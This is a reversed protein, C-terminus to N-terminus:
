PKLSRKEVPFEIHSPAVWGRGSMLRRYYHDTSRRLKLYEHVAKPETILDALMDSDSIPGIAAKGQEDEVNLISNEITYRITM